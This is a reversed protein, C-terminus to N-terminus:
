SQIHQPCPTVFTIGSTLVTGQIRFRRFVVSIRQSIELIQGNKTVSCLWFMSAASGYDFNKPICVTYLIDLPQVRISKPSQDGQAPLCGSISIDTYRPKNVHNVILNNYM